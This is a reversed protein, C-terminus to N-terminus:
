QVCLKPHDRLWAGTSEKPNIGFELANNNIDADGEVTVIYRYNYRSSENFDLSFGKDLVTTEGPALDKLYPPGPLQYDQSQKVQGTGFSGGVSYMGKVHVPMTGTNKIVPFFTITGNGISYCYDYAAVDMAPTSICGAFFIVPILLLLLIAAPWFLMRKMM